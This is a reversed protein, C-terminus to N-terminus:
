SKANQRAKSIVDLGDVNFMISLTRALQSEHDDLHDEKGKLWM